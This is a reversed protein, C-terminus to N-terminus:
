PLHLVAPLPDNMMPTPNPLLCTRILVGRGLLGCVNVKDNGVTCSCCLLLVNKLLALLSYLTSADERSGVQTYITFLYKQPVSSADM